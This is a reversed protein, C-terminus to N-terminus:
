FVMDYGGGIFFDYVFNVVYELLIGEIELFIGSLLDYMMKMCVFCIEIYLLVIIYDYVILM